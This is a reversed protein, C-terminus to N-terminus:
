EDWGAANAENLASALSSHTTQEIVVSMDAVHQLGLTWTYQPGELKRQILVRFSAVRPGHANRWPLEIWKSGRYTTETLRKIM